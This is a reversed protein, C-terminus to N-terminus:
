RGRFVPKKKQVFAEYGIRFDETEFYAFSASIEEPTLPAAQPTL